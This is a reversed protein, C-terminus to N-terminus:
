ARWSMFDGTNDVFDAGADGMPVFALADANTPVAPLASPADITAAALEGGAEIEFNGPNMVVAAILLVHDGGEFGHRQNGIARVGGFGARQEAGTYGGEVGETVSPSERAIEDGHLADASEAMEANLESRLAAIAYGGDTAPRFVAGEGLLEACVNI